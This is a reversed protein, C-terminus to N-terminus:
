ATFAFIVAIMLAFVGLPVAVALFAGIVSLMFRM